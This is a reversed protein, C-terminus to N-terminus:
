LHLLRLTQRANAGFARRAKAIKSFGLIRLLGIAFNRISAMVRPGVGTRITSRDEAFTVDRVWHSRNEIGWHNRVQFLLTEPSAQDPTQSTIGYVCELRPPHDGEYM